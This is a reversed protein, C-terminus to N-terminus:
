SAIEMILADMIAVRFLVINATGVEPVYVHVMEVNGMNLVDKTVLFNIVNIVQGDLTVNVDVKIVNAMHVVTSIVCRKHVIQALGFNIAFV